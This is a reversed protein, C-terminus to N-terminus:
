HLTPSALAPQSLRRRAHEAHRSRSNALEQYLASAEEIAGLGEALRARHYLIEFCGPRLAQLFRLNRYLGALDASSVQLTTLNRLVRECLQEITVPELWRAEWSAGPALYRTAIAICEGQTLARGGGFPDRYGDGEVRVLFRGPLGIGSVSLGARCGVLMWLSSLLIPLGVGSEVLASLGSHSAHNGVCGGGVYHEEKCLVQALCEGPVYQSSRVLQEAVRMGLNEVKEMAAQCAEAEAGEIAFLASALDNGELSAELRELDAEDKGSWMELVGM